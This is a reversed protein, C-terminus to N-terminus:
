APANSALVAPDTRGSHYLLATLLAGAAFIATAAWYATAYGHVAAHQQLAPTIAAHPRLYSTAASAALTSLLAIGVAGGVQQTTNVLASGVGTDQGRLRATGLSIAPAFILGLGLGLILLPGLVAGPYSSTVTLRTLWAMGAAGALMGLPLTLRPGIRTLLVNAGLVSGAITTAVMPLFALGTRVPTYAQVTQLYYTLFLFVSYIGASALTLAIISAARDRDALVRLPLLPAAARAQWGAFAALLAAAGTLSLWSAPAHWGGAQARSLGFVLLFLGASVLATGPLDITPRHAPRDGRRLFAAAGILGIAAFALNVYLTWRWNLHETLLGGLLLGVAGAIGAVAGFIAFARGRAPSGAFTATVIALAAPALLAGFAGQAARGAALVAFNPAAGALASAAAFGALGVMFTRNRGILDSLKGGILLLSGFALAYATVVWQRDADSFALARQASPLAINVVTVDLVVMLQAVSAVALVWWRRAAGRTERAGAPAPTYIKTAM